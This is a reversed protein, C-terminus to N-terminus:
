YSVRACRRRCFFRRIDDAADQQTKERGPLAPVAESHRQHQHNQGTRGAGPNTLQASQSFLQQRVIGIAQEPSGSGHNQNGQNNVASIQAKVDALNTNLSSIQAQLEKVRIIQKFVDMRTFLSKADDGSEHTGVLQPYEAELQKKLMENADIERQIAAIRPSTPPYLVSRQLKEKKQSDILACINNYQESIAPDLTESAASNTGPTVAVVNTMENLTILRGALEAQATAMQNQLSSVSETFAKRSDELSMINVANKAERLQKEVDNWKTRLDGTQRQLFEDLTSAAQHIEASRKLYSDIVAILISKAMVPDPHQFTVFIVASGKPSEAKLGAQIAQAAVYKDTGGGLKALINSAGLSDVVPLATDLSKLIVAESYVLTDGEQGPTRTSGGGVPSTTTNDVVYRVLIQAESQYIVPWSRWIIITAILGLVWITLIKWKHRFVVHYIDGVNISPSAPAPHKENM